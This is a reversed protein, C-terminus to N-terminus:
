KKAAVRPARPRPPSTVLRMSAIQWVEGKRVMIFLYPTSTKGFTGLTSSEADVMAIDASLLRLRQIAFRPSTAESWVAPPLTSAIFWDVDGVADPTFLALVPEPRGKAMGDNFASLTREIGARDAADDAFVCPALLVLIVGIIKM